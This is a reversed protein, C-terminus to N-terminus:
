GWVHMLFSKLKLGFLICPMYVAIFPNSRQKLIHRQATWMREVDKRVLPFSDHVFWRGCLHSNNILLLTLFPNLTPIGNVLKVLWMNTGTRLWSRSKWRWIDHDEQTWSTWNLDSTRKTSIPPFSSWWQQSTITRKTSKPPISSWWQKLKRKMM